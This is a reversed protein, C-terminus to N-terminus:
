IGTSSYRSLKIHSVFYTYLYTFLIFLFPKVFLMERADTDVNTLNVLVGYIITSLRGRVM